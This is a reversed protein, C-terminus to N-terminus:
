GVRRVLLVFCGGGPAGVVGAFVGAIAGNQVLVWRPLKEAGRTVGAGAGARAAAAALSRENLKRYIGFRAAGYTAQRAWSGSVGTWLGRLGDRQVTASLTAFMGQGTRQTQTRIKTQDAPHTITSAIIAAAGAHSYATLGPAPPLSTRSTVIKGPSM